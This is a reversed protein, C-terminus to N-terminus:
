PIIFGFSIANLYMKHKPEVGRQKIRRGERRYNLYMKHKPEVFLALPFFGLVLSNLYMKHKPEVFSIRVASMNKIINLYM